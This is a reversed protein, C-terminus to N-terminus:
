KYGKGRYIGWLAIAAVTPSIILDPLFGQYGYTNGTAVSYISWLIVVLADVAVLFAFMCYHKKIAFIYSILFIVPCICFWVFALIGVPMPLMAASFVGLAILGSSLGVTYLLLAIRSDVFIMVSALISFSAVMHIFLSYKRSM